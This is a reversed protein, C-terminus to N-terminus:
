KLLGLPAWPGILWTGSAEKEKLLTPCPRLVQLLTFQDKFLSNSHDLLIPLHQQTSCRFQFACHYHTKLSNDWVLAGWLRSLPGSITTVRASPGFIVPHCLMIFDLGRCAIIFEDNKKVQKVKHKKLIVTSSCLHTNYM